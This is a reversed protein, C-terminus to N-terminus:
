LRRKRDDAAKRSLSADTVNIAKWDAHCEDNGSRSLGMRRTGRDPANPPAATAMTTCSVGDIREFPRRQPAAEFAGDSPGVFGVSPHTRPPLAQSATLDKAVAQEAVDMGHLRMKGRRTRIALADILTFTRVALSLARYRTVILHARHTRLVLL